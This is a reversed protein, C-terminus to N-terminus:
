IGLFLLLKEHEHGIFFAFEEDAELMAYFVEYVSLM